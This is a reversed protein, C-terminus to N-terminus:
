AAPQTGEMLALLAWLKAPADAEDGDPTEGLFVVDGCYVDQLDGTLHLVM